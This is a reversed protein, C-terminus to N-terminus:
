SDWSRRSRTSPMESEASAQISWTCYRPTRSGGDALKAASAGCLNRFRCGGAMQSGGARLGGACVRLMGDPIDPTSRPM